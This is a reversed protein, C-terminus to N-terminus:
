AGLLMGGCVRVVQGSLGFAGPSSLFTIAEAVDQPLGGQSLSCLRRGAERTAFPIRATMRTEIFGPAVANVAIGRPALQAGLARVYGIVGAKSAAYNTQGTNGAIGAISALCVIRGGEGMLPVLAEDMRLLAMLNVGLVMRWRDEDMNVLMKDRTVGANHVIVDLRGGFRSQILDAMAAPAGDDTVDCLLVTGGIEAALKSAPGDEQPRDVVVVQAGERALARATAAGIGQAAGTVLAVKGELPRTRRVKAPPKVAPTLTIAQGDIYASRPSLLFRLCPEIRDEAGSAVTVLQATSGKRGIEKGMSRMFGDLAQSAAAAAPTSAESPPRGLLIARGCSSLGRLRAQFFRYVAELDEPTKLGTADFILGRSRIKAPEGYDIVAAPLRGHAEGHEAFVKLQEESGQVHPEAGVGVVTSALAGVLESGAHLGVVVALDHLPRDEWPGDARRLTQPLPIPLGLTKFAKRAGPRAGLNVLYDSM